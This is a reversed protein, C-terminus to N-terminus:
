PTCATKVALDKQPGVMCSGGDPFPAFLVKRARGSLCCREKVAQREVVGADNSQCLILCRHEFASPCRDHIKLLDCPEVLGLGDFNKRTSALALTASVKTAVEILEIIVSKGRNQVTKMAGRVERRSGSHVRHRACGRTLWLGAGNRKSTANGDSKVISCCGDPRGVTGEPMRVLTHRECLGRVSGPVRTKRSM